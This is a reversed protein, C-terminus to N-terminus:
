RGDAPQGEKFNLPQHMSRDSKMSVCSPEPSDSRQQQMRQAKSQSEHEVQLTTESPPAGEERDECQNMASGGCLGNSTVSFILDFNFM